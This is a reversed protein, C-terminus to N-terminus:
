WILNQHWKGALHWHRLHFGFRDHRSRFHLNKLSINIYYHMHFNLYLKRLCHICSFSDMITRRHSNSIETLWKFISGAWLNIASKMRRLSMRWFRMHLWGTPSSTQNKNPGKTYKWVGHTRVAFARALSRLSAQAKEPWRHSLCWLSM